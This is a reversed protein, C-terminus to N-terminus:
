LSTRSSEADRSSLTARVITDAYTFLSCDTCIYHM